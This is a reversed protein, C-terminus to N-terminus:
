RAGNSGRFSPWDCEVVKGNEQIRSVVSPGVAVAFADKTLNSVLITTRKEGYRKDILNTLTLNEFDSEKREHAEDLVLGGFRCIENTIQYDNPGDGGFGSRIRQFLDMLRTYQVTQGRDCIEHLLNVAMQTKGTGRKGLLVILPARELMPVLRRYEQVWCGTASNLDKVKEAHLQPVGSNRWRGNKDVKRRVEREAMLEPHLPKAIEVRGGDSSTFIKPFSECLRTAETQIKPPQM